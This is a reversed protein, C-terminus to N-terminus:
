PVLNQKIKAKKKAAREDKKAKEEKEKILQYKRAVNIAGQGILWMRQWSDQAMSQHSKPQWTPQPEPNKEKVVKKRAM